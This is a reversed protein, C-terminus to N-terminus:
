SALYRDAARKESMASELPLREPVQTVSDHCLYLQLHLCRHHRTSPLRQDRCGVCINKEIQAVSLKGATYAKVDPIQRLAVNSAWSCTVTREAHQRSAM